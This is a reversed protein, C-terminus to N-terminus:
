AYNKLHIQPDIRPISAARIGTEKLVVDEM